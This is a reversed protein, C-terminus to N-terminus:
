RVETQLSLKHDLFVKQKLWTGWLLRACLHEAKVVSDGSEQAHTEELSEAHSGLIATYVVINIKGTAKQYLWVCVFFFGPDEAHHTYSQGCVSRERVGEQKLYDLAWSACSTRLGHTMVGELDCILFGAYWISVNCNM